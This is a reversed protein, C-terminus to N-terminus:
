DESRRKFPSLYVCYDVLNTITARGQAKLAPHKFISRGPKSNAEFMWIHEKQDIGIDFGLEGLQYSYNREIAESLQICAEKSQAIIDKAKEETFAHGLAQQPTLLRGGTRLHTTVSGRGAKKAGIAAVQWKGQENKVLHFRFDLPCRDIEVLRVGQQAVYRSLRGKRQGLMNMLDGFSRFRLLVNKGNSRFRSFYGKKSNYTLRYIGKGLSGSTPKLYIFQHKELMRKIQDASPNIISEPVYKRSESTGDLLRYVDWKDFFSWNFLPIGRRLFREKMQIFSPSKEMSRSPLRNYIVNPLSVRKKVIHGAQHLFYGIATGEAWDVSRPSFAYIYGAKNGAQLIQKIFETRSGFPKGPSQIVGTMIGIIPGLQLQDKTYTVSCSKANPIHLMSKVSIPLVINHTAKKMRKVTLNVSNQGFRVTTTRGSMNLQKYLAQSIYLTNTNNRTFKLNCNSLM